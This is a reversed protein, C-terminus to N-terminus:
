FTKLVEPIVKIAVTLYQLAKKLDLKGGCFNNLCTLLRFRSLFEEKYNQRIIGKAVLISTIIEALDYETVFEGTHKYTVYHIRSNNAQSVPIVLINTSHEKGVYVTSNEVKTINLNFNYLTYVNPTLLNLIAHKSKVPLQALKILTIGYKDLFKQVTQVFLDTNLYELAAFTTKNAIARMVPEGKISVETVTYLHPEIDGRQLVQICFVSYFERLLVKIADSVHWLQTDSIHEFRKCLVGGKEWFRYKLGTLMYFKKNSQIVKDALLKRFYSGYKSHLFLYFQLIISIDRMPIINWPISNDESSFQMAILGSETFIDDLFDYTNFHM